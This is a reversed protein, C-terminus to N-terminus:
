KAFIKLVPSAVAIADYGKSNKYDDIKTKELINVYKCQFKLQVQISLTLSENKGKSKLYAKIQKDFYQLDNLKFMFTNVSLDTIKETEIIEEYKHATNEGSKNENVFGKSSFYLPIFKYNISLQMNLYKEHIKKMYDYYFQLNDKLFARAWIDPINETVIYFSCTDNTFDTQDDTTLNKM